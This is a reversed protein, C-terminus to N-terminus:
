SGSAGRARATEKNSERALVNLEKEISSFRQFVEHLRLAMNRITDAESVVAAPLGPEHMLLEANGLISTIANTTTHRMEVMYRGLTAQAEATDRDREAERARMEAQSRRLIEVALLGTLASWCESERSLALISGSNGTCEMAPGSHIVIAPKGALSLAQSLTERQAQSRADAVALDYTDRRLEPCLDEKLVVFDPTEAGAPWADTVEQSFAPDSSLILVTLRAPNM